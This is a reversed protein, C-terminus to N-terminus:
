AYSQPWGRAALAANTWEAAGTLEVGMWPPIVLDPEPNEMEATVLGSLTGGYEDIEWTGSSGALRWRHKVLTKTCQAYLRRAVEIEIPEELELRHGSELLHVKCAVMAETDTIRVRVECMDDAHLWGQHIHAHHAARMRWGDGEVLFKREYEVPMSTYRRWKEEVAM